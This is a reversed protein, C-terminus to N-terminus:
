ILRNFKAYILKRMSWGDETKGEESMKHPFINGIGGTAKHIWFKTGDEKPANPNLFLICSFDGMHVDTHIFHPEEQGKPSKRFFSLTPKFKPFMQALRSPVLSILPQVSIGHFSCEPFHHSQFPMTLAQERYAGPDEIFNDIVYPFEM